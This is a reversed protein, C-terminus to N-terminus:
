AGAKEAAKLARKLDDTLDDADELGTPLRTTAQLGLGGGALAASTPIVRAADGSATAAAASM